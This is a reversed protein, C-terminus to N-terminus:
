FNSLGKLIVLFFIPSALWIITIIGKKLNYREDRITDLSKETWNKSAIYSFLYSFLGIIFIWRIEIAQSFIKLVIFYFVFGLTFLVNGWFISVFMPFGYKIHNLTRQKSNTEFLISFTNSIKNIQNKM